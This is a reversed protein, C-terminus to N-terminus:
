CARDHAARDLKKGDLFVISIKGLMVTEIASELSKTCSARKM